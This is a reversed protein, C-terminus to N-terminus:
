DSLYRFVMNLLDEQTFPKTMYDTAGSLKAKARNIIGKNGTVMVIPTDQFISHKRILSCLQYGDINPMGIDMLILDPKVKTIMILAKAANNVPVITLNDQSLFNTISKLIIPSDDVCVITYNKNSSSSNSINALTIDENEEEVRQITTKPIQSRALEKQQVSLNEFTPLKDFPAQPERLIITRNSILPYLKKAITLKDQNLVAELQLFNFGKLMTALKKQQELPIQKNAENIKFFYPREYVSKVNNFLPYWRKLNEKCEKGLTKFDFEHIFHLQHRKSKLNGKTLNPILLYSELVEKILLKLLSDAMKLSILNQQILWEIALYECPLSNFEQSLEEVQLHAQNRIKKDITKDLHSLRKLHRDLRESPAVSHSAYICKGEQFYFDYVISNYEIEIWSSARELSSSELFELKNAINKM